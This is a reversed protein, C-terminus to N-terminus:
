YWHLAYCMLNALIKTELSGSRQWWDESKLTSRCLDKCFFTVSIEAVKKRQQKYTNRCPDKEYFDGKAKNQKITKLAHGWQFYVQTIVM